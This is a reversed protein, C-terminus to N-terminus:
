LQKRHVVISYLFREYNDTIATEKLYINQFGTGTLQVYIICVTLAVKM